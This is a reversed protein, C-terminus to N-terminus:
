ELSILGSNKAMIKEGVGKINTLQNINTFDGHQKRWQVIREAKKLGIGNLTAAIQEADATNINITQATATISTEDAWVTSIPATLIILLTALKLIYSSCFIPKM